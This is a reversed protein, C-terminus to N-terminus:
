RRKPRPKASKARASGGRKKTGQKKAGTTEGSRAEGKARRRDAGEWPGAEKAPTLKMAKGGVRVKKVKRKKVAVKKVKRKKSTAGAHNKAVKRKKSAAPDATKKTDGRGVGDQSM